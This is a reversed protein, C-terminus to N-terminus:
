RTCQELIHACNMVFTQTKLRQNKGECINKEEKKEMVRQRLRVM